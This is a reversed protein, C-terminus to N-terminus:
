HKIVAVSFLVFLVFFCSFSFAETHCIHYNQKIYLKRYRQFEKLQIGECYINNFNLNPLASTKM